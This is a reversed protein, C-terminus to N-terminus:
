AGYLDKLLRYVLSSPHGGLNTIFLSILNAPVHDYYPNIVEIQGPTPHYSSPKSHHNSSLDFSDQLEDVSLVQDPTDIDLTSWQDGASLYIPAFKFMGCIVVVPVNHVKAALALGLSGSKALISGDAFVIHCGIILKTCRSILGFTSGDSIVINPIKPVSNTLKKSLTRGSFSPATESIIVTFKRKNKAAAQLFSTVTRSNDLTMIVEGSHIHESAQAAVGEQVLDLEDYLEQVAEIFIPKLSLSNSNFEREENILDSPLHEDDDDNTMPKQGLLRSVSEEVIGMNNNRPISCHSSSTTTRNRTDNSPKNLRDSNAEVHAALASAYEEKLLIIVRKVMNGIVFERPAMESLFNGVELLHDCLQDFSTYKASAIVERLLKITESGTAHSGVIQRNQLKCAFGEIRKLIQPKSIEHKFRKIAM